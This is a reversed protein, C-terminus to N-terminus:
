RFGICGINRLKQARQQLNLHFQQFLLPLVDSSFGKRLSKFFVALDNGLYKATVCGFRPIPRGLRALNAGETQSVCRNIRRENFDRDRRLFQFLSGFLEPSELDEFHKAFASKSSDKM